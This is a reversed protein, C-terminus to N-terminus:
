WNVVLELILGIFIIVTGTIILVTTIVEKGELKGLIFVLIEGIILMALLAIRRRGIRYTILGFHFVISYRELLTSLAIRKIFLSTLTIKAFKLSIILTRFPFLIFHLRIVDLIELICLKISFEEESIWPKPYGGFWYIIKDELKSSVQDPLRGLFREEIEDPIKSIEQEPPKGLYWEKYGTISAKMKDACNKIKKIRLAAISGSALLFGFIELILALRNM